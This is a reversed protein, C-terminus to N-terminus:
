INIPLVSFVEITYLLAYYTFVYPLRAHVFMSIALIHISQWIREAMYTKQPQHMPAVLSVLINSAICTDNFEQSTYHSGTDAKILDPAIPEITFPHSTPAQLEEGVLRHFHPFLTVATPGITSLEPSPTDINIVPLIYTGTKPEPPQFKSPKV